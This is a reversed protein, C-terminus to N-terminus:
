YVPARYVKNLGVQGSAKHLDGRVAVEGKNDRALQAILDKMKRQDASMSTEVVTLDTTQKATLELVKTYTNTLLGRNIQEPKVDGYITLHPIVSLQMALGITYFPGTM